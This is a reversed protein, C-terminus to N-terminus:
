VDYGGEQVILTYSRSRSIAPRRSYTYGPAIYSACIDNDDCFDRVQDKSLNGRFLWWSRWYSGDSGMKCGSAIPSMISVGFFTLQVCDVIACLGATTLSFSEFDKIAYSRRCHTTIM